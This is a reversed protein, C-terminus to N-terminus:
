LLSKMFLIPFLANFPHISQVFPNPNVAHVKRKVNVDLDDLDKSFPFQINKEEPYLPLLMFSVM